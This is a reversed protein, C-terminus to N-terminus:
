YQPLVWAFSVRAWAPAAKGNADVAPKYHARSRILNCSAADLTASGSSAIIRCDEVKGSAEIRWLITVTGQERARIAAPPYDDATIWGAMDAPPVKNALEAPDVKWSRVLDAECSTVANVVAAGGELPLDWSKKAGDITICPAGLLGPLADRDFAGAWLKAGSKTLGKLGVPGSLPTVGPATIRIEGGSFATDRTIVLLRFKPSPPDAAFGITVEESATRFTRAVTCSAPESVQGWKGAPVWIDAASAPMVAAAAMIGGVVFKIM